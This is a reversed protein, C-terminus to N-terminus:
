GAAPAAGLARTLVAALDDPVITETTAGLEAITWWAHGLLTQQEMATLAGPRVAVDAGVRALYFYDTQDYTVGAWSWQRRTRHVPRADRALAVSVGVEEVAERVAADRSDEGNEVGGGPTLWHKRGHDIREHILLIRDDPDVLLLRGGVREVPTTV